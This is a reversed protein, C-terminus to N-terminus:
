LQQEREKKNLSEKANTDFYSVDIIAANQEQAAKNVSRTSNNNTAISLETRHYMKFAIFLGLLIICSIKLKM